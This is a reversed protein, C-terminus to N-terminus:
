AALAQLTPQLDLVAADHGCLLTGLCTGPMERRLAALRADDDAPGPPRSLLVWGACELGAQVLARTQEIADDAGDGACGVVFVFPLGLERALALNSALSGFPAPAAGDVVVTDAWTALVRFTDVVAELTPPTGSADPRLLQACLVRTPLKFASAAALQQLEESHWTGNASVTGRAVPKMGVARIGQGALTRLLATIVPTLVAQREVGLVIFSRV